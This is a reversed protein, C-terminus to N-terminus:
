GQTDGFEERETNNDSHLSSSTAFSASYSSALLGTSQTSTSLSWTWTLAGAELTTRLTWPMWVTAEEMPSSGDLLPVPNGRSAQNSYFLHTLIM